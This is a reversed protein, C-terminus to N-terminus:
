KQTLTFKYSLNVAENVIDFNILKLLSLLDTDNNLISITKDNITITSYNYYEKIGLTKDAIFNLSSLKNTLNKISAIDEESISFPYTVQANAVNRVESNQFYDISLTTYAENKVLFFHIIKRAVSGKGIKGHYIPNNITIDITSCKIFEKKLSMLDNPRKALQKTFENFKEEDEALAELDYFGIEPDNYTETLFKDLMDIWIPDRSKILRKLKVKYTM